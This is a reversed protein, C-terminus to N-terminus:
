KGFMPAALVPHKPELEKDFLSRQRIQILKPRFASLSETALMLDITALEAILAKDRYKEVFFRA